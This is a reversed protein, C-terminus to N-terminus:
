GKLVRACGPRCWVSEAVEWGLVALVHAGLGSVALLANAQSLIQDVLFMRTADTETALHRTLHHKHTRVASSCAKSYVLFGSGSSM